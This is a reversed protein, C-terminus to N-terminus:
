IHQNTENLFLEKIKHRARSLLVRVNGPTTNTLAAMESISLGDMHRMKLIVQQSSPLRNLLRDFENDSEVTIINSDAYSADACSSATMDDIPETKGRKRICSIAENRAITIMLSEISDYDDLKDRLTWMKLLTNQAIDEADSEDACIKRAMALIHPRRSAVKIEFEKNDMTYQLRM